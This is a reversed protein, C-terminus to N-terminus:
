TRKGPAEAVWEFYECGVCRFIRHVSEGENRPLARLYFRMEGDCRPCREPTKFATTHDSTSM